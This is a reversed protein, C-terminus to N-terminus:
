NTRTAKELFQMLAARDEASTIRQEPMKTGPTYANPGIEFLKSVTEPTWVVDMGRLAASFAYGPLSGIKRGFLGHLSPGARQGESLSLAHCAVCARYIEAGRDGAFAALPDSVNALAVSGSHEGKIADWRRILRDTGGTLLTKNDPLFVASWIPLGPGVLTRVVQRAPADIIAVAGRVGAAAILLGDHAAAIAIIPSESAAIEAEVVGKASIFRIKGDAGGAVIVGNPLIALGNLPAPVSVVQPAGESAIPWIRLTADYGASALAKGDPTFAIGNVNSTHGELIRPAGGSLPWLRITQDWSASALLRGDPSVSLGAIPGSHGELVRAPQAQGANWIAIRGDEGATAMRGEPLFAVANVANDHHRLVAEASNGSLSWRIAASDFSGSLATAGDSSVALARVPGGHGRLQAFSPLTLAVLVVAAVASVNLSLLGM